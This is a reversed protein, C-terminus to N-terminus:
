RWRYDSAVPLQTKPLAPDAICEDHRERIQEVNRSCDYRQVWVLQCRRGAWQLGSALQVPLASTVGRLTAKVHTNLVRLQSSPPAHQCSMRLALMELGAMGAPEAHGTNAKVSGLNLPSCDPSRKRLIAETLSGVETPDGLATGTGHAEALGVHDALIDGFNLAEELLGQQAQGNPATLGASRGDQKVSRSWCRRTLAAQRPRRHVVSGFAEGKMFGDARQDFTFCRGARSLMGARAQAIHGAALLMLFVGASLAVNCGSMILADHAASAAVLGSSCSTDTVMCPGHLGLVFSVRGAAVAMNAGTAAHVSRVLHENGGIYWAFDTYDMGVFVGGCSGLLKRQTLLRMSHLTATRSSAAAATSGHSDSRTSSMSFFTHDFLEVDKLFGHRICSLARDPLASAAVLPDSVLDWRTSPMPRLPMSALLPSRARLM